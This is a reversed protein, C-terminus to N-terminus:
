CTSTYDLYALHIQQMQRAKDVQEETLGLKKLLKFLRTLTVEQRSKVIISM